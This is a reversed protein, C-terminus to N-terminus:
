CELYRFTHQFDTVGICIEFHLHPGTSNGTSGVHGIVQIHQVYEGPTVV